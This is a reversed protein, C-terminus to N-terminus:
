SIHSNILLTDPAKKHLGLDVGKMMLENSSQCGQKYKISSIHADFTKNSIFLLESIYKRKYGNLFLFFVEKEKVSLEKVKVGCGMDNYNSANKIIESGSEYNFIVAHAITGAVNGSDDWLIKKRAYLNFKNGLYDIIPEFLDYEKGNMIDNEHTLYINSFVHWPMDKDQLGIIEEFNLKGSLNLYTQNCAIIKHEIDKVFLVGTSFSIIPKKSFFEFTEMNGKDRLMTYIAVTKPINHNYIVYAVSNITHLLQSAKLDRQLM